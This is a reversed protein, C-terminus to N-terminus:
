PLKGSPNVDGFLVDVLANGSEQGPLRAMLVATVNELSWWFLEWPISLSLQTLVTEQWPPSERCSGSHTAFTHLDHLNHAWLAFQTFPTHTHGFWRFLDYFIHM